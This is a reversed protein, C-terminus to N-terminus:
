GNEYEKILYNKEEILLQRIKENTFQRLEVYSDDENTVTFGNNIFEELTVIYCISYFDEMRSELFELPGSENFLKKDEEYARM